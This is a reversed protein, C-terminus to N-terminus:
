GVTAVFTKVGNVYVGTKAGVAGVSTIKYLYDNGTKSVFEAKFVGATGLAFTPTAAATVKLTYAGKVTVDKTTDTTFAPAKVTAVLLKTGNLYIGTAAGVNGIATIKYFYDNGNKSALAVSFVGATGTTFTPATTSTIKFQYTSGKAVSFDKTTDSTAEPVATATIDCKAADYDDLEYGDEDYLTATLTTHNESAFTSDISTVEVKATNGSTTLTFVDESGGDLEWKVTYGAPLSTGNPYAVATFTESYDKAISSFTKNIAVGAFSTSAVKFTDVGSATTKDVTFGYTDLDDVDVNGADAKFAVLGNTLPDSIKMRAGSASESIYLKGAGVTFTGDGDITGVTVADKFTIAADTDFSLTDVNVTGTVTVDTDDNQTAIKGNVANIPAAITGVFADDEDDENGLNLTTDYYDFDITGVSIGSGDTGYLTFDSDDDNATIGGISVKAEDAYASVKLATIKGTTIPEDDDTSQIEVTGDTKITGVSGGNITVKDANDDADSTDINGAKGSTITVEGSAGDTSIDGVKGDTLNVEGNDLDVSGVNGDGIDLQTVTGSIKRVNTDEDVSVKGTLTGFVVEKDTLVAEKGDFQKVGDLVTKGSTKKITFGSDKYNDNSDYSLLTDVDVKKEIKAKLTYKDDSNSSVKGDKIKKATITVNGTGADGTVTGDKMKGITAVVGNVPDSSAGDSTIIGTIGLLHFDNSGSSVDIQYGDKAYGTKADSQYLNTAPVFNAFADNEGPEVTFIGVNVTAGATMPFADLEDIGEGSDKVKTKGFVLEGKDYVHVTLEQSGKVTYEDGDDNTYDGSFLVKIVETGNDSSSKLKLTATDDDDGSLKLSVLRDGSVHSIATVKPDSVEEHNKTELKFDGTALFANLDVEKSDGGNALYIDDQQTKHVTGSTSKNAAFAFNASFSTVVLALALVLSVVKGTIKKM